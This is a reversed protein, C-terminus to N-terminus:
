DPAPTRLMDAYPGNGKADSGHCVACNNDYERKGLDTKPQQALALGTVAALLCLGGAKMWAQRKM